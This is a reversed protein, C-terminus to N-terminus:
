VANVGCNTCPRSMGTPVAERITGADRVAVDRFVLLDPPEDIILHVGLCPLECLGEEADEFVPEFTVEEIREAYRLEASLADFSMELSTRGYARSAAFPRSQMDFAPTPLSQLPEELLDMPCPIVSYESLVVENEEATEEKDLVLPEVQLIGDPSTGKLPQPLGSSFFTAAMGAGRQEASGTTLSPRSYPAEADCPVGFQDPGPAAALYPVADSECYLGQAHHSDIPKNEEHNSRHPVSCSSICTPPLNALLRLHEPSLFCPQQLKIPPNGVDGCDIVLESVCAASDSECTDSREISSLNVAIDRCSSGSQAVPQIPDQRYWYHVLTFYATVLCLYIALVYDSHQAELSATKVLVYSGFLFACCALSCVMAYAADAMGRLRQWCKSLWSSLAVALPCVALHMVGWFIARLLARRHDIGAQLDAGLVDLGLLGVSSCTAVVALYPVGVDGFCTSLASPLEAQVLREFAALSVAECADPHVLGSRKVLSAAIGYLLQRDAEDRCGAEAVRFGRARTLARAQARSWRRLTVCLGFAALYFVYATFASQVAEAVGLASLALSAGSTALAALCGVVVLMPLGTPLASVKGGPRLALYGVLELVNRLRGVYADTHVLLFTRSGALLLPLDRVSEGDRGRAGGCCVAPGKAGPLVDRGALLALLFACPGLVSCGFGSLFVEGHWSGELLPLWGAATLALLPCCALLTAALAARTNFHLALVLFKRARPVCAAHLSIFTDIHDVHESHSHAETSEVCDDLVAGCRRLLAALRIGLLAPVVRSADDHPVVAKM